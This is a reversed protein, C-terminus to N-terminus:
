WHSPREFGPPLVTAWDGRASSVQMQTLYIARGLDAGALDADRLDVGLVDCRWLRAGSLDAGILVAGRLTLGSLDAGALAVGSLDSGPRLRGPDAPEHGRRAHESAALLLPRARDYEADVDLAALRDPGLDSLARVQEFREVLAEAADASDGTLTIAQDLYWLLEHLRRVVPFAQFMQTRVAADERWSRGDALRSVKQGAGFCDFVTCGKFGLPRLEAHVRCADAKDLHVCPEGAAKDIPFDASRAFALAVCCLGFCSSCDAGLDERTGLEIRTRQGVTM